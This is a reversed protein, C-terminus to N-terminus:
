TNLYSKSQTQGIQWDQNFIKDTSIFANLLRSTCCHALLNDATLTIPTQHALLIKAAQPTVCYAHTCDHYGAIKLYTSYKEPFLNAIQTHSWKLLGLMHQIHYIFQKTKAALLATKKTEYGLYLMDWKAPLQAVIQAFSGINDFDVIVDDELILSKAYNNKIIDEYIKVHSYACAIQGTTMPKNYRNNAKALKESYGGENELSTITLNKKDVGFIFDYNLGQLNLKIEEQRDTARQLTLVYIKDFYKNFPEFLNSKNSM